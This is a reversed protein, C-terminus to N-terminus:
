VRRRTISCPSFVNQLLTESSTLAFLFHTSSFFCSAPIIPRPSPICRLRLVAGSLLRAGPQPQLVISGEEKSMQQLVQANM